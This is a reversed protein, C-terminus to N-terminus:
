HPTPRPLSNGLRGRADSARNEALQGSVIVHVLSPSCPRRFIADLIALASVICDWDGTRGQDHLRIGAAASIANQIENGRIQSSGYDKASRKRIIGGEVDAKCQGLSSVLEHM